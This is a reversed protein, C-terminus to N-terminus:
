RPKVIVLPYQRSGVLRLRPPVRERFVREDTPPEDHLDYLLVGAVTVLDGDAVVQESFSAPGRPLAHRALFALEREGNDAPLRENPVDLVLHEGDILCSTDALEVAFRTILLLERSSSRVRARVVVCERGSLPAIVTDEIARVVGIIWVHSGESSTQTLAACRRLRRGARWQDLLRM